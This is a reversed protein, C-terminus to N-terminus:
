WNIPVCCVGWGVGLMRVSEPVRKIENLLCYLGLRARELAQRVCKEGRFGRGKKVVAVFYSEDKLNQVVQLPSPTM